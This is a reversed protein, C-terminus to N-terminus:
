NRPLELPHAAFGAGFSTLWLQDGVRKGAKDLAKTLADSALAPAHEEFARNQAQAGAGFVLDPDSIAFHRKAIGSDQTLIKRVLSVSSEKLEIGEIHRKPIQWCDQQTFSDKPLASALSNLHM